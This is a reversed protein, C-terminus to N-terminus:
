GSQSARDNPARIPVYWHPHELFLKKCRNACFYYIKGEFECTAVAQSALFSMGCVEDHVQEM